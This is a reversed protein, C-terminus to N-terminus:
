PTEYLIIKNEWTKLLLQNGRKGLLYNPSIPIKGNGGPANIIYTPVALGSTQGRLNEMIKLGEDVTTIFHSTGKVNKAHFIYYPRVRIKLLEQNLKKMVHPDNNVGRLLVAQNGLLVGAKILLDCARKAEPTIELPHNFQTNIYIPPYKELISCLEPTVRQPLTVPVRTGIRKIELHPISHLEGLLWDLVSDDLLLADGGTVLVDRIERNKRIYNLAAELVRRPQHRDVMGINRRRQCHRCFMACKNTVNIILRDPYRRTIGPAPSTWEEAMPDECGNTDTVELLTPLSQKWLPGYPQHSMVLALYYPSIAWRLQNSVSAIEEYEEHSLNIFQQLKEVTTIRNGLQWSWNDWDAQSAQLGSLIKKRAEHYNSQLQYGTPINERASLYEGIAEKLERSRQLAFKRRDRSGKLSTQVCSRTLEIAMDKVKRAFKTDPFRSEPM